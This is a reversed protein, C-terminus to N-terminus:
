LEVIIPFDSAFTYIIIQKLLCFPMFIKNQHYKQKSVHREGKLWTVHAPPFFRSPNSHHSCSPLTDMYVCLPFASLPRQRTQCFGSAYKAFLQPTNPLFRVRTIGLSLHAKQPVEVDGSPSDPDEAPPEGGRRPKPQLTPKAGHPLGLTCAMSLFHSGAKRM